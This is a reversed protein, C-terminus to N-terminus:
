PERWTTVTMERTDFMVQAASKRDSGYYWYTFTLEVRIDDPSGLQTLVEDPTMGRRLQRWGARFQPDKAGADGERQQVADDGGRGGSECGALPLGLCMGLLPLMLWRLRAIRGGAQRTTLAHCRWPTTGREACETRVTPRNSETM